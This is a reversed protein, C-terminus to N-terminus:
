KPYRAKLEELKLKKEKHIRQITEKPEKNKEAKKFKEKHNAKIIERYLKYNRYTDEIAIVPVFDAM